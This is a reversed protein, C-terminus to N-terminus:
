SAPRSAHRRGSARRPSGRGKRFMRVPPLELSQRKRNSNNQSQQEHSVQLIQRNQWKHHTKGCNADERLELVSVARYVASSLFTAAFFSSPTRFESGPYIRAAASLTGTPRAAEVINSSVLMPSSFWCADTRLRAWSVRYKRACTSGSRTECSAAIFSFDCISNSAATTLKGAGKPKASEGGGQSM